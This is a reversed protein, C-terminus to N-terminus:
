IGVLWPNVTKYNTYFTECVNGVRLGIENINETTLFKTFLPWLHGKAKLTNPNEKIKRLDSIDSDYILWKM